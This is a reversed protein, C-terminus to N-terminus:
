QIHTTNTDKQNCSHILDTIYHKLELYEKKMDTRSVCYVLNCIDHLFQDLDDKWHTSRFECVYGREVHIIYKTLSEFDEDYLGGHQNRVITWSKDVVDKWNM